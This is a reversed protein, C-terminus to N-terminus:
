VEKIASVVVFVTDYLVNTIIKYNKYKNFKKDLYCDHLIDEIFKVINICNDFGDIEMELSSYVGHVFSHMYKGNAGNYDEDVLNFLGEYVEEKTAGLSFECDKVILEYNSM